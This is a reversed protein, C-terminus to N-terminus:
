DHGEHVPIDGSWSSRKIINHVTIRFNHRLKYVCSEASQQVEARPSCQPTTILVMMECCTPEQNPDQSPGNEVHIRPNERPVEVEEWRGFVHMNAQNTVRFQEM